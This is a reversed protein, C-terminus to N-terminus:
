AAVFHLMGLQIYMYNFLAISVINRVHNMDGVAMDFSYSINSVKEIHLLSANILDPAYCNIWFVGAAFSEHSSHIFDIAVESPKVGPSGHLIQM